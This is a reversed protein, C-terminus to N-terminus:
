VRLGHFVDIVHPPEDPPDATATAEPCVQSAVPESRPQLRRVGAGCEATDDAQPRRRPPHSAGRRPQGEVREPNLSWHRAVYTVNSEHQIGHRTLM